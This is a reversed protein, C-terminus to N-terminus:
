WPFPNGSRDVFRGAFSQDLRVVLEALDATAEHLDLPAEDGGMRTRIWGPNIAVAAIGLSGIDRDMTVTVMNLAAKSANYAYDIGLGREFSSLTSSINAIVGGPQRLLPLAAQAVLLSGVVNTAFVETLAAADLSSMPGASAAWSRGAPQKIGANNVLVDLQPTRERLAAPLAEISAPDAIDLRIIAVGTAGLEDAAEPTRCAAIVTHGAALLHGVLAVGIGRAAGTVLVTKSRVTKSHVPKSHVTKVIM